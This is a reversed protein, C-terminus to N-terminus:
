DPKTVTVHVNLEERFLIYAGTQDYGPM